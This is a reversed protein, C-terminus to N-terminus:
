EDRVAQVALKNGFRGAVRNAAALAHTAPVLAARQSLLHSPRGPRHRYFMGYREAELIRFGQARLEAAVDELTLRMVDNGAEERALALGVRVAVATAAARAPETVSVAKRAVRAMEALGALPRALHHLGDHVYVLDFSQDRFPLREVDAVVAALSFGYRQARELARRVAGPSIDSTVVSAGADALFEADMGSGGCVVLATAGTLLPRLRSTARRFKEDLLHAYFAPTGHPRSVEFAADERDFFAAQRSKLDDAAAARPPLLVPV